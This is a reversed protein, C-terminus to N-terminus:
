SHNPPVQAARALQALLGAHEKVAFEIETLECRREIGDIGVFARYPRSAVRRDGARRDYVYWTKGANDFFVLTGDLAREVATATRRDQIRREGQGSRTAQDLM